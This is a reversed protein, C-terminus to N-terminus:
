HSIARKAMSSVTQDSSPEKADAPIDDMESGKFTIKEQDFNKVMAQIAPDSDYANKFLDYTFQVRGVNQM